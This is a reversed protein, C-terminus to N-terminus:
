GNKDIILATLLIMLNIPELAEQKLVTYVPGGFNVIQYQAWINLAALLV